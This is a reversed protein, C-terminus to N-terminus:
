QSEGADVRSGVAFELRVWADAHAARARALEVQLDLLDRHALLLSAVAGRGAVYDGVVADFVGQAQPILTDEYLEIRRQTDRLDSWARAVEAAADDGAAERAARQGAAEADAAKRASAYDDGWLPVSVTLMAVIPDKGDDPTPKLADGTEIWDVGVGFNPYRATDALRGKELAVKETASFRQVRPHQLALESLTAEDLAPIAVGPTAPEVPTATGAPAGIAATLQANLRIQAEDMQRLADEMRALRIEIQGVDALRAGGVEVRARAAEALSRLVELQDEHVARVRQLAWLKWYILGVRRRVGLVEAEFKTEDVGAAAAAVAVKADLRGPWPFMQSAGLKHRQPGVRTEVSRIFYGYRLQPDPLRDAGEIRASRARWREWAARLRPSNEVAYVVYDDLTTGRPPTPEAAHGGFTRDRAARLADNSTRSAEPAACGTLLAVLAVTALVPRM